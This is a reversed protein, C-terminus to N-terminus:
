NISVRDTLIISVIKKGVSLDVETAPCYSINLLPCQFFLLYIFLCKMCIILEVLFIDYGVLLLFYFLSLFMISTSIFVINLSEM